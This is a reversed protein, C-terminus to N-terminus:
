REVVLTFTFDDSINFVNQGQYCGRIEAMAKGEKCTSEHTHTHRSLEQAAEHMDASSQSDHTKHKDHKAQIARSRKINEISSQVRDADSLYVMRINNGHHM